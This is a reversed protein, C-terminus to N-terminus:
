QQQRQRQMMQGMAMPDFPKVTGTIHDRADDETKILVMTDGSQSVTKVLAFPAVKSSIWIDDGNDNKWHECSFTGAPVTITETGVQHPIFKPDPTYPKSSRAPFEMPDMGPFQMITRRSQFQGPVILTKAYLKGGMNPAEMSFEFWYAKQGDVTDEGVVAFDFTHTQGGKQNEYVAGKGVTPNFFKRFEPSDFWNKQGFQMQAPTSFAFILVALAAAPAFYWRIKKM